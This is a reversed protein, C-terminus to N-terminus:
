APRERARLLMSAAARCEEFCSLAVATSSAHFAVRAGAGRWLGRLGEAAAIARLGGWLSTFQPAGGGGVGGVQLRLKILDLPNTAVSAGAGAASAVAAQLWLPLHAARAPHAGGAAAAGAAGGYWAVARARLAEYLAFYIASFPGFSALTAAYGRYLGRLGEGSAAIQRLADRASAYYAAGRAGRVQVQMREKVVDIPVYLACALAEAVLGAGLHAGVGGGLNAKAVEYASFYVCSAPASAVVAVGLGRYLARAGEARWVARAVTLVGGHATGAQIRAKVTDLPHTPLRALAGSVMSGLMTALLDPPVVLGRPPAAAAAGGGAAAATM